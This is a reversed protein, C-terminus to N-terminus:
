RTHNPPQNATKNVWQYQDVEYGADTRNAEVIYQKGTELGSKSASHIRFSFTKGGYNGSEIKDVRFTVVWNARSQLLTSSEISQVTGVFVLDPKPKAVTGSGGVVACGTTVIVSLGLMLIRMMM